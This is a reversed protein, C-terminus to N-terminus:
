HDEEEEDEERGLDISKDYAALIAGHLAARWRSAELEYVAEATTGGPSTVQSRLVAPHAGTERALAASGAVTQLALEAAIERSLGLHVGADTLAELFLFVYAPGSGSLATAMDLYKEEDVYVERGLSQLLQQATERHARGVSATAMWVSMGQGIRAPTNPMVRILADHALGRQLTTLRAGAVISLVAQEPRLGGRLDQMVAPLQQPKVALVLFDAHNAAALNSATTQIGYRQALLTRQEASVDSVMIEERAAVGGDLLRAVMAEGMVGGGIFGLKM